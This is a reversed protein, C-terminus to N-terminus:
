IYRRYFENSGYVYGGHINVITTLPILADQKKDGRVAQINFMIGQISM